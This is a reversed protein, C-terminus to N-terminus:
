LMKVYFRNNYIVVELIMCDTWNLKDPNAILAGSCKAIAIYFTSHLNSERAIECQVYFLPACKECNLAATSKSLNYVRKALQQQTLGKNM